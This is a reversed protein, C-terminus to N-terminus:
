SFLGFWPRPHWTGTVGSNFAQSGCQKSCFTGRKDGAKPWENGRRVWEWIRAQENANSRNFEDIISNLREQTFTMACEYDNLNITRRCWECHEAM